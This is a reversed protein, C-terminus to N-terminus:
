MEELPIVATHRIIGDLFVLDTTGGGIDNLCSGEKKRRL